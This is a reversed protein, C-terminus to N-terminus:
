PPLLRKTYRAVSQIEATNLSGSQEWLMVLYRHPSSLPPPSPGVYALVPVAKSDLAIWDRPGTTSPLPQLDALIGAMWSLLRLGTSAARGIHQLFGGLEAPLVDPAHRLWNTEHQSVLLLGLHNARIDQGNSAWRALKRVRDPQVDVPSSRFVYQGHRHARLPIRFRYNRRKTHFLGKGM